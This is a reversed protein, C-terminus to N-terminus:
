SGIQRQAPEAHANRLWHPGHIGAEIDLARFGLILCVIGPHLWGPRGALEHGTWEMYWGGSAYEPRRPPVLWLSPNPLWTRTVKAVVQVSSGHALV